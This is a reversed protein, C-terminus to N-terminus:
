KVEVFRMKVVDYGSRILDCWQCRVKEQKIDRCRPLTHGLPCSLWENEDRSIDSDRKRNSDVRHQWERPSM